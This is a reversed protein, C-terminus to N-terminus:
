GAAERPCVTVQLSARGRADVVFAVVGHGGTAPTRHPLAASAREYRRFDWGRAAALALVRRRALADNGLLRRAYGFVSVAALTGDATMAASFGLNSGRAVREFPRECAEEILKRLPPLADEFRLRWLLREVQWSEIVGRGRFYVEYVSTDLELGAGRPILMGDLDWPFLRELAARAAPAPQRPIEAYLKYANRDPGHRAGLWSGFLLGGGGQLAALAELLEAAPERGGMACGLRLAAALRRENALEAGAVEATYRFTEDPAFSLEVPFGCATLRSFSWAVEPWRSSGIEALVRDLSNRASAAVTRDTESGGQFVRGLSLEVPTAM